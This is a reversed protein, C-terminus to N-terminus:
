TPRPKRRQDDIPPFVHILPAIQPSGAFSVSCVNFPRKRAAYLSDTKSNGRSGCYIADTIEKIVRSSPASPGKCLLIFHTVSHICHYHCHRHAVADTTPGYISHVPTTRRYLHPQVRERAYSIRAHISRPCHRLLELRAM